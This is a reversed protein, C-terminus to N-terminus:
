NFEKKLLSFCHLDHSAEKFHAYERLVGEEQFGLKQLLKVSAVNGPMVLAQFRNVALKEFGFRIIAQLAESMIGCGWYPQALDYGLEARFSPKHFMYGCTGIVTDHGKQTIGWRLGAQQTFREAQRAILQSAQEISTLTALDYYRTVEDDAFIQFVAAADAPRMERLILNRTELQPFKKLNIEMNM